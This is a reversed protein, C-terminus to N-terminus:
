GRQRERARKYVGSCLIRRVFVGPARYPQYRRECGTAAGVYECPQDGWAYVFRLPLADDDVIAATATARQARANHNVRRRITIRQYQDGATITRVGSQM